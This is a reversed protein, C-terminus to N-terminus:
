CLSFVKAECIGRRAACYYPLFRGIGTDSEERQAQRGLCFDTVSLITRSPHSVDRAPRPTLTYHLTEDSDILVDLSKKAKELEEVRNDEDSRLRIHQRRTTPSGATSPRSASTTRSHASQALNSSTAFRPVRDETAPPLQSSPLHQPFRVDTPSRGPRRELSTTRDTFMSTAPVAVHNVGRASSPFAPGASDQTSYPDYEEYRAPASGNPFSDQGPTSVIMTDRETRGEEEAAHGQIPLIVEAGAVGFGSDRPDRGGREDGSSLALDEPDSGGEPNGMPGAREDDDQEASIGLGHPAYSVSVVPDNRGSSSQARRRSAEVSIAGAITAVTSSVTNSRSSPVSQQAPPQATGSKSQTVYDVKTQLDELSNTAGHDQLRGNVKPISDLIPPNLGSNPLSHSRQRAFEPRQSDDNVVPTSADPFKGPMVLMSSPRRADLAPRDGDKSDDDVGRALELTEIEAIDNDNIPLPVDAPLPSPRPKLSPSQEEQITSIPPAAPFKWDYNPSEPSVPSMVNPTTPRSSISGASRVSGKWSRWLRILPGEKGVGSMDIEELLIPGDHMTQNSTDKSAAVHRKTAHQAAICLAQEALFELVTTLFIATPPSITASARVSGHVRSFHDRLELDELYEEEDEEEMDGLKAYVMCRMRTLKWALDTDFDAKPDLVAPTSLVEEMEHEPIYDQLEEDAAQVASRGLRQKLVVPVAPRVAWLATSHSKALIDHLIQDLFGNVLGVAGESIKVQRELEALILKEAESESVYAPPPNAFPLARGSKSSMSLVDSSSGMSRLGPARPTAEPSEM